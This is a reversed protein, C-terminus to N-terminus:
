LLVVGAALKYKAYQRVAFHEPDKEALEEFLLDIPNKFTEDEERVEMQNIMSVLTNMTQYPPDYQTMIYGILAQYLMAEAKTWFGDGGKQDPDTTNQILATVLKLIDKESRIYALPNYRMSKSFDITNIVKIRYGKDLLMQGCEELISGKPDTVVCSIAYDKSECLNMINPKAYFRTKGSGSGGIILINKNRAFKVPKPRSNMTLSETQTLIINNEPKPDAYNKANKKTGWVASGHERDPRYKKKNLHQYGIFAMFLTAVILALVASHIPVGIFIDNAVWVGIFIFLFAGAYFALYKWGNM